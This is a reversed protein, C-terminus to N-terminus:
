LGPILRWGICLATVTMAPTFGWFLRQRSVGSNERMLDAATIALAIATALMTWLHYRLEAAVSFVSYGLGYLLASLAVPIVIGRSPLNGAITLVGFALALWVIPWDLPTHASALAVGDIASLLANPPVRYGWDNPASEVQVPREIEDHVLFRTNINFHALRHEAYAVPHKLIARALFAYPSEHRAAIAARADAFGIACPEDVWWSYPDWKVPSYCQHNVSVPDAVALPPFADVGSHETIGGLDFIVLSMEVGSSQAGILRNAVPLAFILVIAAITSTGAVRLLGRRAAAPMLAVIIPVGALFANFRLTAALILLIIALTPIMVRAAPRRGYTQGHTQWALLGTASLLAGAMLCDKLVAGTLALAIPLLGCAALAVALGHRRERLAWGALLALGGWFLTLQLLLMPAPGAHLPILQRWLWEMVPPHWDDFAGSIAQDYQRVADWTMLGPWYAFGTATVGALIILAPPAISLAKSRSWFRM